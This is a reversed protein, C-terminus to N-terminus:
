KNVEKNILKSVLKSTLKKTLWGEYGIALCARIIDNRSIKRKLARRIEFWVEEVQEIEKRTFYYGVKNVPLDPPSIVPRSVEKSTFKKAEKKVPKKVKKEKQEAIKELQSYTGLPPNNKVM